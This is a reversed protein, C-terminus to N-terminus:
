AADEDEYGEDDVPTFEDSFRFAEHSRDVGGFFPATAGVPLWAELGPAYTQRTLERSLRAQAQDVESTPEPIAAAKRAFPLAGILGLFGRRKM